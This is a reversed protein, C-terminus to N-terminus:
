RSITCEDNILKSIQKSGIQTNCQAFVFGKTTNQIYLRTVMGVWVIQVPHDPIAGDKKAKVDEIRVELASSINSCLWMLLQEFVIKCGFGYHHAAVILDLDPLNMLFKPLWDNENMEDIIQNIFRALVSRTLNSVMPYLPIVNYNYFLYPMPTKKSKDALAKNKSAIISLWIERVFADGVLWVDHM